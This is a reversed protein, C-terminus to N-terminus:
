MSYWTNYGCTPCDRLPKAFAIFGNRGDMPLISYGIELIEMETPHLTSDLTVVNNNNVAGETFAAPPNSLIDSM